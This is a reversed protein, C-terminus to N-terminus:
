PGEGGGSNMRKRLWLRIALRLSVGPAVLALRALFGALCGWSVCALAVFAAEVDGM